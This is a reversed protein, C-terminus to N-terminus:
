SVLGWTIALREPIKYKIKKKDLIGTVLNFTNSIPSYGRAIIIFFVMEWIQNETPLVTLDPNIIEAQYLFEIEEDTSYSLKLFRYLIYNLRIRTEIPLM